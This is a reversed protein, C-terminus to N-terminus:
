ITQDKPVSWRAPQKNTARIINYPIALGIPVSVRSKKDTRERTRWLFVPWRPISDLRANGMVVAIFYTTVRITEARLKGYPFAITKRIALCGM